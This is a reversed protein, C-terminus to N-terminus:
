KKVPRCSGVDSPQLRGAKLDSLQPIGKTNKGARKEFVKREITIQRGSSTFGVMGNKGNYALSVGSSCFFRKEGNTVFWGLSGSAGRTMNGTKYGSAQLRSYSEANAQTSIVSFVLAALLTKGCFRLSRMNLKNGGLIILVFSALM